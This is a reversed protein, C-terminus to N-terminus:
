TQENLRKKIQRRLDDYYIKSNKIMEETWHKELYHVQPKNKLTPEHKSFMKIKRELELASYLLGNILVNLKEHDCKGHKEVDMNLYYLNRVIMLLRTYTEEATELNYENRHQAM